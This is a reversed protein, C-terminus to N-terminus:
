ILVEELSKGVACYSSSNHLMLSEASRRNYPQDTSRETSSDPIAVDQNVTVTEMSCTSYECTDNLSSITDLQKTSNKTKLDRIKTAPATQKMRRGRRKPLSVQAKNPESKILINSNLMHGVSFPKILPRTARTTDPNLNGISERRKQIRDHSFVDVHQNNRSPTINLTPVPSQSTCHDDSVNPIFQYCPFGGGFPSIFLKGSVSSIPEADLGFFCPYNITAPPSGANVKTLTRPVQTKYDALKLEAANCQLDKLQQNTYASTYHRTGSIPIDVMKTQERGSLQLIHRLDSNSHGSTTNEMLSGEQQNSSHLEEYSEL